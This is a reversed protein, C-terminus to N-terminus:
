HATVMLVFGILMLAAGSIRAGINNEKFFLYGYVVSILMSVRKVSIMYAVNALKMALMHTIIMVANFLGALVLTRLNRGSTSAKLDGKGMLLALPAFAICLGISYTSAFFLPSSHEIAMKGLASTIGYLLAVMIMLVPGKEKAIVRFPGFLGKRIDGINLVYSGSAIFFIGITGRPSVKEGLLLYSIMILSLPTLSLFPLTLSMPSVKLARTYLVITILELPLATFFALYFQKDLAPAPALLLLFLLPLTFLLRSLAVLYEDGQELSKKVLADSTALCFASILSM